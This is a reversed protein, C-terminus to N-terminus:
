LLGHTCPGGGATSGPRSADGVLKELDKTM